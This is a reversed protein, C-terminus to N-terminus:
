RNSRNSFASGGRRDGRNYGGGRHDNHSGYMGPSPGGSVHLGINSILYSWFVCVCVHICGRNHSGYMGPSPGGSVHVHVNWAYCLSIYIFIFILFCVWMYGGNHSGYIGPLPGVSVYVCLVCLFYLDYGAPRRPTMQVGLAEFIVRWSMLIIKHTIEKFFTLIKKFHWNWAYLQVKKVEIYNGLCQIVFAHRIKGLLYM